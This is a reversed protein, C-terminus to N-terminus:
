RIGRGHAEAANAQEDEGMHRLDLRYQAGPLQEEPWQLVAGVSRVTAREGLKLGFELVFQQGMPEALLARVLRQARSHATPSGSVLEGLVERRDRICMESGM